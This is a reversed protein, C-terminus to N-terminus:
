KLVDSVYVRPSKKISTKKRIVVVGDDNKIKVEQWKVFPDFPKWDKMYIEGQVM